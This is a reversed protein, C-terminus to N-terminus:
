PAAHAALFAGVEDMLSETTRGEVEIPAGFTVKVRVGRRVSISGPPLIQHTGALAIPLIPTGTETALMFGGKKLRGLQGTKSRTGEPAIWVNVGSRILEGAARLSAIARERNSRDVEVMQAVRMARSFVPIKFLETKTVMRMRRGEIARYLIPIDFHSQHNSMLVYSRSWDVTGEVTLDVGAFGVVERSWADLHADVWEPTLRGTVANAIAAASIKFTQALAYATALVWTMYM